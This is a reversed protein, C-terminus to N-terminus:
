GCLLGLAPNLIASIRRVCREAHGPLKDHAKGIKMSEQLRSTILIMVAKSRSFRREQGKTKLIIVAKPTNAGFPCSTMRCTGYNEAMRRM